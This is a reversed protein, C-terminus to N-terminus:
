RPAVGLAVAGTLICIPSTTLLIVLAKLTVLFEPVFQYLAPLVSSAVFSISKKVYILHFVFPPHYKSNSGALIGLKPINDSADAVVVYVFSFYKDSVLQHAEVSLTTLMPRKLAVREAPAPYVQLIGAVLTIIM